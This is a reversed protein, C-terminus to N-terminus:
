IVKIGTKKIEIVIPNNNEKFEDKTFGIPEIRKDVDFTYEWLKDETKNWNKKFKDSIVAVDIDSRNSAKNKSYSGFLYIAFFSFNEKELKEAYKKVIKLSETKSM